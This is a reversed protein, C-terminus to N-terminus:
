DESQCVKCESSFLSNYAAHAHTQCCHLYLMLQLQYSRARGSGKCLSSHKACHCPNYRISFVALGTENTSIGWSVTSQNTAIWIISVGARKQWIARVKTEKFLLSRYFYMLQTYLRSYLQIRLVLWDSLWNTRLIELLKWWKEVCTTNRVSGALWGALWGAHDQRSYQTSVNQRCKCQLWQQSIVDDLEVWTM